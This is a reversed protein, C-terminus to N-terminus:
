DEVDTSYIYFEKELAGEFLWEKQVWPISEWHIPQTTLHSYIKKLTYDPIYNLIKTKDRICKYFDNENILTEPLEYKFKELKIGQVNRFYLMNTASRELGKKVIFM